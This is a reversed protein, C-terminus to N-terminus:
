GVVLVLGRKLLALKQAILPMKLATMSPIKNKVYRVVMGVQGRQVYVNPRLAPLPLAKMTGEIKVAPVAGATLFLDSGEFEVMYQLYAGLDDTLNPPKVAEFKNQNEM